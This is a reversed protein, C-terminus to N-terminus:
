LVGVGSSVIWSLLFGFIMTAFFARFISQFFAGALMVAMGILILIPSLEAWAILLGFIVGAVLGGLAMIMANM